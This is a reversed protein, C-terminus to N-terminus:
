CSRLFAARAIDIMEEVTSGDAFEGLATMRWAAGDRILACMLVGTRPETESLEYRVLEADTAGDVLRCYANKVATFKQGSYSNITFVIGRYEPALLDLTVSIREDDGGGDGTLNDGSHSIWGGGGSLCRYWITDLVEGNADFAVCSSDLDISAGAEAPDWGLGLVVRSLAPAATKVLSVSGGKVLSVRGGDLNVVPPAADSPGGVDVGFDTAIGALGSAYGQGVARVKWGAGRRYLELLVLATEVGLGSPAYSVLVADTGVDRVAAEVAGVRGFDAAGSGDLSLVVVVKEVDAPVAATDVGVRRAEADVWVGPGRPANYFVFDADGRVRGDAGVLLASVDVAGACAVTVVVAGAALASNGGSVLVVSM